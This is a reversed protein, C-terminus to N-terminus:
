RSVPADNRNIAAGQDLRYFRLVQDDRQLTLVRVFGDPLPEVPRHSKDISILV